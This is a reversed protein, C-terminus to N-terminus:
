VLSTCVENNTDPVDEEEACTLSRSDNDERAMGPLVGDSLNDDVFSLSPTIVDEVNTRGDKRAVPVARRM